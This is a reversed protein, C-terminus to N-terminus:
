AQAGALAAVERDAMEALVRHVERRLAADADASGLGTLLTALVIGVEAGDTAEAIGTRAELADPGGDRVLPDELATRLWRLLDPAAREEAALHRAVSYASLLQSRQYDSNQGGDDAAARLVRAVGLILEYPKM